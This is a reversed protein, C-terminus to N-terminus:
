GCKDMYITVFNKYDQPKWIKFGCKEYISTYCNAVISYTIRNEKKVEELIRELYEEKTAYVNKIVNKKISVFAKVKEEQIYLYWVKKDDDYIRDNVQNEILRSGFAKGMYGYFGESENTMKIVM